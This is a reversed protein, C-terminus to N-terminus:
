VLGFIMRLFMIFFSIKNAINIPKSAPVHKACCARPPEGFALLPGLNIEGSALILGSPLIPGLITPGSAIFGAAAAPILISAGIAGLARVAGLAFAFVTAGFAAVTGFAVPAAGLTFVRGLALVAVLATVTAGLAVVTVGLAVATVSALVTGGLASITGLATVVTGVALLTGVATTFM